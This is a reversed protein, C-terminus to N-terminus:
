SFIQGMEPVSSLALVDEELIAWSDLHDLVSSKEV